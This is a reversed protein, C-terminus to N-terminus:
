IRPPILRRPLLSLWSLYGSQGAFAGGVWGGEGPFGARASQAHGFFLKMGGAPINKALFFLPENVLGLCDPKATCAPVGIVAGPFACRHTKCCPLTISMRGHKKQRYIDGGSADVRRRLRRSRSMADGPGDHHSSSSALVVVLYGTRRLASRLAGAPATQSRNQDSSLESRIDSKMTLPPEFARRNEAQHRSTGHCCTTSATKPIGPAGPKEARTTVRSCPM